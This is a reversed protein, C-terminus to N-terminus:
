VLLLSVLIGHCLKFNLQIPCFQNKEGEKGKKKAGKKRGRQEERDGGVNGKGEEVVETRRQGM